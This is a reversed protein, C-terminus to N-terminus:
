DAYRCSEGLGRGIPQPGVRGLEGIFNDRERITLMVILDISERLHWIEDVLIARERLRRLTLGGVDGHNSAAVALPGTPTMTRCGLWPLPSNADRATITM